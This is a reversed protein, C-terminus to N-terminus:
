ETIIKIFGEKILNRVAKPTFYELFKEVRVIQGKAFWMCPRLIEYHKM